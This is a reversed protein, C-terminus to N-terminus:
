LVPINFIYKQVEVSLRKFTVEPRLLKMAMLKYLAGSLLFLKDFYLNQPEFVFNM